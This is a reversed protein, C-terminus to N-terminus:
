RDKSSISSQAKSKAPLVAGRIKQSGVWPSPQNWSKDVLYLLGPPQSKKRSDQKQAM